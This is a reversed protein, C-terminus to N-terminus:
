QCSHRCQLRESNLHSVPLSKLPSNNGRNKEEWKKWKGNKGYCGKGISCSSPNLSKSLLFHKHCWVYKCVRDAMKFGRTAMQSKAPPATNCTTLSHGKVAVITNLKTKSGQTAPIHPIFALYVLLLATSSPSPADQGFIM